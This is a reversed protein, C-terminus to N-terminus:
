PSGAPQDPGASRDPWEDGAPGAPRHSRAELILNGKGDFALAAEGSVLRRVGAGVMRARWGRALRAEPWGRLFAVLDSRTALSAADIEEDRALQAVWAAALSVAPRSERPVEDVPPQVLDAEDLRAGRAVADLIESGASGRLFRGDMGRVTRLAVVTTPRSHAIAQMALDPLVFRAPQDLEQARRERWAAVEQAVGRAPGRLSRSDRLRWWSREPEPPGAPRALVAECEEEVWELRGRAELSQRLTAALDPLHAVDAAAYALQEDTLPRRQWDTLRDAKPLRLGLFAHVLSALSASGHGLFGAAVQTDFLRRPRTGCARDLVELDQDVAHAILLGDGELLRRLPGIGVALPDILAVGGPWAVQVLAVQAWYTRERHFETDLAYAESEAVEDVLRELGDATTVIRPAGSARDSGSL